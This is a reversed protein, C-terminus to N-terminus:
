SEIDFKGAIKSYGDAKTIIALVKAGPELTVGEAKLGSGAIPTLPYENKGEATEVKLKGGMGATDWPEDDLIYILVLGDGKVLELSVDGTVKVIGGHQPETIGHAHVQLASFAPLVAIIITAVIKVTISM